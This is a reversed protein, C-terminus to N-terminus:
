LRLDFDPSEIDCEPGPNRQRRIIGLIETIQPHYELLGIWCQRKKRKEWSERAAEVAHKRQDIVQHHM